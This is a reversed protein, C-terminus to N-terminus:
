NIKTQSMCLPPLKFMDQSMLAVNRLYFKTFTNHNKWMCSKMISDLSLNREFKILATLSRIEHVSARGLNHPNDLVLAYCLKIVRRIWNAISQKTIDKRRNPQLSVFLSASQSRRHATRALYLRLARVPCLLKNRNYAAEACSGPIFHVKNAPKVLACLKFQRRDTVSRSTQNKALFDSRPELYVTSWDKTHSVKDFAIAHLESIRCSCAVATLFVCKLTLMKFSAQTLPEFPHKCLCELVLVLNWTPLKFVEAPCDKHYKATIACLESNVTLDIGTCFKLTILICSKIGDLTTPVVDKSEVISLLFDALHTVTTFIPHLSERKCWHLYRIWYREYCQESSERNKSSIATKFVRKGGLLM